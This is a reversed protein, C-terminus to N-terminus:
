LLCVLVIYLVSSILVCLIICFIVCLVCIIFCFFFYCVYLIFCFDIYYCQIILNVRQKDSIVLKMMSNLVGQIVVNIQEMIDMICGCYIQNQVKLFKEINLNEVM